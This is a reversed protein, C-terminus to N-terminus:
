DKTLVFIMRQKDCSGVYSIHKFNFIQILYDQLEQQTEFYWKGSRTWKQNDYTPMHGIENLRCEIIVRQCLRGIRLANEEINSSHHLVSFLTITSFGSPIPSCDLDLTIYESRSYEIHKLINNSKIMAADIDAGTM